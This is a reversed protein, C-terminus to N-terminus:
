SKLSFPLLTSPPPISLSLVSSLFSYLILFLLLPTFPPSFFIFFYIFLFLSLRVAIVGEVGDTWGGKSTRMDTNIIIHGARRNKKM